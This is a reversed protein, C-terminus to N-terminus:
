NEKDSNSNYIYINTKFKINKLKTIELKKLENLKIKNLKNIEIQTTRKKKYDFNNSLSIFM